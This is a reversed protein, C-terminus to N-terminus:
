RGGGVVISRAWQDRPGDVAKPAAVQDAWREGNLWTAAHPIFKPDGAAWGPLHGTLGRAITQADVKKRAKAYAKSANAKADKRPYIAWFTDFEAALAAADDKGKGTGQEKGVTLGGRDRVADETLSGQVDGDSGNEHEPCPPIKSKTPRNIRQHGWEPCHLYSKGAVEFFCLSGIGRLEDLAATLKNLTVSDDLPYLAAKILRIDARGRGEDDCYTWLGAFTWRALVSVRSLSDSTFADPKITRIRAM